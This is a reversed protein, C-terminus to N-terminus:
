LDCVSLENPVGSECQPMAEFDDYHIVSRSVAGSGDGRHVSGAHDAYKVPLDARSSVGPRALRIAVQEHKDIGVRDDSRITISRPM